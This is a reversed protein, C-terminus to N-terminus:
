RSGELNGYWHIIISYGSDQKDGSEWYELTPQLGQESCYDFIQKAQGILSEYLVNGPQYHESNNLNLFRTDGDSFKFVEAFDKGLLAEMAGRRPIQNIVESALQEDAVTVGKTSEHFHAVLCYGNAVGSNGMEHWRDFSPQCDDDYDSSEHVLHDWVNRAVGTLMQPTGTNLLVPVEQGVSLYSDVSVGPIGVQLDNYNVTMIVADRLGIASNHRCRTTIQAKIFEAKLSPDQDLLEYIRGSIKSWQALNIIKGLSSDVLDAISERLKPTLAEFVVGSGYAGHAEGVVLGPMAAETFIAEAATNNNFSAGSLSPEEAGAHTKEQVM